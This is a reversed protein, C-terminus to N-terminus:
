PAHVWVLDIKMINHKEKTKGLGQRLFMLTSKRLLQRCGIHRARIENKFVSYHYCYFNVKM